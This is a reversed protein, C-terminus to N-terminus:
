LLNFYYYGSTKRIVEPFIEQDYFITIDCKITLCDEPLFFDSNETINKVSLFWGFGWNSTLSTKDYQGPFFKTTKKSCRKLKHRCIIHFDFKIKLGETNDNHLFVSIEDEPEKFFPKKREISFAFKYSKSM